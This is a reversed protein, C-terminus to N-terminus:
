KLKVGLRAFFEDQKDIVARVHTIPVSAKKALYIEMMERDIGVKRLIEAARVMRRMNEKLDEIPDGKEVINVYGEKKLKALFNWARAENGKETIEM